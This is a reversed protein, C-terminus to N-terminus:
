SSPFHNFGEVELKNEVGDSTLMTLGDENTIEGILYVHCPYGNKFMEQFPESNKRPVTVLLRYDEGGSLALKYPDFGNIEALLRLNDSLPLASYTLRAGVSSAECIHSLDSVLGDSLDIMASALRSQAIIRGAEMLPIPLNHAGILASALAEPASLENKILKLGAGADGLTGTVYIIDGGGAGKRYLVEELPASGRVTVTLMLRDHSASTDGGLLNVGYRRCMAKVGRYISHLCDITMQEPIALSMFMHLANGGMAAIDSLNVAVAKQGLHEPPIKGSLFHIDELLLDTTILFVENGYPGIVACDDGIGKILKEPSFHCHDMISRIFGFEGLKGIKQDKNAM